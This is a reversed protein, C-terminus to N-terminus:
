TIKTKKEMGRENKKLSTIANNNFKDKAGSLTVKDDLVDKSIFFLLVVGNILINKKTVIEGKTYIKFM